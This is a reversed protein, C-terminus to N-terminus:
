RAQFNLTRISLAFVLAFLIAYGVVVCAVWPLMDYDFGYSANLFDRLPVPNGEATLLQKTVNGFQSVMLGYLTWAVPCGWYYWRWWGPISTRPLLFGTFLMWVGYFASSLISAFTANPTLAVTMMGYYTYYLFTFFM